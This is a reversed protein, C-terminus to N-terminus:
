TNKNYEPYGELRRLEGNLIRYAFTTERRKDFIDRYKVVGYVVTLKGHEQRGMAVPEFPLIDTPPLAQGTGIPIPGAQVFQACELNPRPPLSSVIEFKVRKEDIWGPSSGENRCVLVAYFTTTDGGTGSGELVHVEGDAWKKANHEIEVMVWARQANRATSMQKWIVFITGALVLTQVIGVIVSPEM